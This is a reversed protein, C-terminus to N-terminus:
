LPMKVAQKRLYSCWKRHKWCSKSMSSLVLSFYSYMKITNLVHIGDDTKAVVKLLSHDTIVRKKTFLDCWLHREVERAKRFVKKFVCLYFFSTHKTIKRLLFWGALRSISCISKSVTWLPIWFCQWMLSDDRDPM